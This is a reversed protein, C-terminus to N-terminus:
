DQKGNNKVECIFIRRSLLRELRRRDNRYFYSLVYLCETTKVPTGGIMTMVLSMMYDSEVRKGRLSDTGEKTLRVYESDRFATEFNVSLPEVEEWEQEMLYNYSYLSYKWENNPYDYLVGNVIKFRLGNSEHTYIKGEKLENFKM